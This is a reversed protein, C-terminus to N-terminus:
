GHTAGQNLKLFRYFSNEREEKGCDRIVRGVSCVFFLKSFTIERRNSNISLPISQLCVCHTNNCLYVMRGYTGQQCVTYNWWFVQELGNEWWCLNHIFNTQWSYYTNDQFFGLPPIVEDPHYEGGWLGWHVSTLHVFKQKIYESNLIYITCYTFPSCQVVDAWLRKKSCDLNQINMTQTDLLHFPSLIWIVFCIRIRRFLPSLM